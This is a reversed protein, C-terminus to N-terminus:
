QFGRLPRLTRLLYFKFFLVFSRMLRALCEKSLSFGKHNPWHSTRNEWVSVSRWAIGEPFCAQKQQFKETFPWCYTAMYSGGHVLFIKITPMSSYSAPNDPSNGAGNLTTSLQNAMWQFCHVNLPKSVLHTHSKWLVSAAKISELITKESSRELQTSECGGM